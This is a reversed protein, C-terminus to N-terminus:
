VIEFNDVDVRNNKFNVNNVNNITNVDAVRKKCFFFTGNLLKSLICSVCIIIFILLLLVILSVLSGNDLTMM